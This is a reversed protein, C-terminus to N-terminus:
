QYGLDTINQIIPKTSKRIGELDVRLISRKTIGERLFKLENKELGRRIAM